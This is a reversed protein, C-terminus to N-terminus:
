GNRSRAQHHTWCDGLFDESPDAIARGTYRAADLPMSMVGRAWNVSEGLNQCWDYIMTRQSIRWQGGASEMWDLYRGGIVMDHQCDNGAIRHYALVNTEVFASDLRVDILSQGLVHQTVQIDPSGPVIWELYQDFTGRFIGHDIVAEPWFTGKILEANRRDEGRALRALCDRIQERALLQALEHAHDTM